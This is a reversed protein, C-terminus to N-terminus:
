AALCMLSRYSKRNDERQTTTTDERDQRQQEKETNAKVLMGLEQKLDALGGGGLMRVGGAKIKVGGRTTVLTVIAGANRSVVRGDTESLM